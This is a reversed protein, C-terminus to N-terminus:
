FAWIATGRGLGRETEIRRCLAVQACRDDVVKRALHHEDTAGTLHALGRECSRQQRRGLTLEVVINGGAPYPVIIRIPKSPFAQAMLVSPAACATAALLMSLLTKLRQM